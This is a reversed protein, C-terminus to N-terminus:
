PAAECRWMADSSPHSGLFLGVKVFKMRSSNRGALEQMRRCSAMPDIDYKHAPSDCRDTFSFFPSSRNNADHSPPTFQQLSRVWRYAGEVSNDLNDIITVEYGHELLRLM